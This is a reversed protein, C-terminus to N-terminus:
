AYTSGGRFHREPSSKPDHGTVCLAASGANQAPGPMRFVVHVYSFASAKHLPTKKACPNQRNRQQAAARKSVVTASVLAVVISPTVMLMRAFVHAVDGIIVVPTGPPPVVALLAAPAVVVHRRTLRLFLLHPLPVFRTLLTFVLPAIVLACLTRVIPTLATLALVFPALPMFRAFLVHVIPALTFALFPFTARLPAAM